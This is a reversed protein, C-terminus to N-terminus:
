SHAFWDRECSDACCLTTNSFFRLPASGSFAVATEEMATTPGL